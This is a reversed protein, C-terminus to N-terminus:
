GVPCAATGARAAVERGVRRPSACRALQDRWRLRECTSGPRMKGRSIVNVALAACFLTVHKAVNKAGLNSWIGALIESPRPKVEM